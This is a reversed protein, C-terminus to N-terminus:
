SNKNFHSQLSSQKIQMKYHVSVMKLRCKYGHSSTKLRPHLARCPEKGYLETVEVAM